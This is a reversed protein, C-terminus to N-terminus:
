KVIEEIRVMVEPPFFTGWNDKISGGGGGMHVLHIKADAPPFPTNGFGKRVIIDKGDLESRVLEGKSIIGYWHLPADKSAPMDFCWVNFNANHALINLGDQEKYQCRDFANSFCWVKWMHCFSKSRLAVMGCNYYEAPLIGIRMMEVPPYFKEDFRNWNIVVGVDFTKVNLIDDLTHLVLQDVDFGVVLEYEDLLPESLVPKQRYFFMPDELYPTLDKVEVGKPLKALEKPDKMTTYFLMDIEKTDHFKTMSKWFTVGYKFNNDDAVAFFVAPKKNQTLEKM